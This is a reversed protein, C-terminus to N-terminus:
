SGKPSVRKKHNMTNKESVSESLRVWNVSNMEFFCSDLLEIWNARKLISPILVDIKHHCKKILVKQWSYRYMTTPANANKEFKMENEVFFNTLLCLESAWM